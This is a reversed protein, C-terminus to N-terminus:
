AAYGQSVLEALLDPPTWDPPKILKGDDRITHGPRLKALNSEDVLRQPEEDAIGFATLTGTTVVKIDCCGDLVGVIDCGDSHEEFSILDIDLVTISELGEQSAEFGLDKITELCEELILRARLQREAKSPIVPKDPVGQRAGRMFEDVRLQHVSRM